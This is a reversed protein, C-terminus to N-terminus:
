RSSSVRTIRASVTVGSYVSTKTCCMAMNASVVRRAPPPPEQVPAGVSAKQTLAPHHVPPSAPPTIATSQASYQHLPLSLLTLLSRCLPGFTVSAASVLSPHIVLVVQTEM